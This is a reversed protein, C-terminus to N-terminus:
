TFRPRPSLESRCPAKPTAIMKGGIIVAGALIVTATRALVRDAIHEIRAPASTSPRIKARLSSMWTGYSITSQNIPSASTVQSAAVRELWARIGPYRALDFGGEPAVHTYAYLAMDAISYSRGAFFAHEKLQSEM